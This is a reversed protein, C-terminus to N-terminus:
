TPLYVLGQFKTRHLQSAERINGLKRLDEAKLRVAIPSAVQLYWTPLYYDRMTGSTTFPFNPLVYFVRFINQFHNYDCSRNYLQKLPYLDYSKHM